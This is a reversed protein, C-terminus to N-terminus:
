EPDRKIVKQADKMVKIQRTLEERQRVIGEPEDLSRILDNSKYLEDYLKIQMNDQISRVLNFGITKPVSDRLNRVILKFYSEIRNRIESIFMSKADMFMGMPKGPMKPDEEAIQVTNYNSIYNYDNTFLYNVESDVLADVLYKCKEKEENLYRTIIEGVEDVMQPFRTFTKELIKAALTDLYGFSNNFCENIPEKLLNLQPRLLFWFANVSPFGPISDGEHTILARNIEEDTYGKTCRYKDSFNELLKKFLIKIKYGGEDELFSLRKEDYKGSLVNRYIDCFENLMNWMLSLKGADDVPMPTGLLALEEECKKINDNISKIIHPLHERIVRFLIKTLKQILVDTGYYGPGMRKYVPHNLFFNKEKKFAEQMPIKDVLDQKSRNKVGVYGLKLPIEENMLAKRADTGQDMIDLKTLVGLTRTGNVDIEKAMKLGDSTAIDSNAAIVCLIITLPDECYRRAMNKTIEEINKPQKGVPVRTVGPLDILTLDPCTQSYVNLVIPKDVINKEEKCVEDTLLEITERVKAFDTFKVGKREEFYAYPEGSNIHCLRLELPRRTVVGDGRPLFDLGVISELVSSKGSSQTGLSAIRPLKIYEQVGCDRLQDILTILKRLKKFLVNDKDDVTDVM